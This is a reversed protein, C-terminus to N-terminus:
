QLRVHNLLMLWRSFDLDFFLRVREMKQLEKETERAERQADSEKRRVDRLFM